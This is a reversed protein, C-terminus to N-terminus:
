EKMKTQTYISVTKETEDTGRTSGANEKVIKISRKLDTIKTKKKQVRTEKTQKKMYKTETTIRHKMKKKLKTAMLQTKKKVKKMMKRNTIEIKTRPTRTIQYTFQKVKKCKRTDM